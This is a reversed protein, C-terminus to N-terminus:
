NNSSTKRDLVVKEYEDFITRLKQKQQDSLGLEKLAVADYQLTMFTLDALRKEDVLERAAVDAASSAAETRRAETAVAPAEKSGSFVERDLEDIVKEQQQSTLIKMAADGVERHTQWVMRDEEDTLRRLRDRQEKTAHIQDLIGTVQNGAGGRNGARISSLFQQRALLRRLTALQGATLLRAIADHEQKRMTPLKRNFEAGKAKRKKTPQLSDNNVELLESLERFHAQQLEAEIAHLKAQQETSLALQKVFDPNDIAQWEPGPYEQYEQRAYATPNAGGTGTGSFLREVQEWQKPSIVAITKDRNEKLSRAAREEVSPDQYLQKSLEKWQEDSLGIKGRFTADSLLRGGAMGIEASRVATLQESTLM